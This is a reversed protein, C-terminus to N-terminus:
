IGTLEAKYNYMMHQKSWHKDIANKFQHITSSNVVADTLTREKDSKRKFQKVSNALTV